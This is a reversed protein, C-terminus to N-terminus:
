GSAKGVTVGPIQPCLDIDVHRIACRQHLIKERVQARLASAQGILQCPLRDPQQQARAKCASAVSHTQAGAAAVGFGIADLRIAVALALLAM